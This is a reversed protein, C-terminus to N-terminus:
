LNQLIFDLKTDRLECDRCFYNKHISHRFTENDRCRKVWVNHYTDIKIILFKEGIEGIDPFQKQTKKKFLFVYDGKKLQTNEEIKRIKKILLANDETIFKKNEM